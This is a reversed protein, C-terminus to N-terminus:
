DRTKTAGSSYRPVPGFVCNAERGFVPTGPHRCANGKSSHEWQEPVQLRHMNLGKEMVHEGMSLYEHIEAPCRMTELQISTSQGVLNMVLIYAGLHYPGYLALELLGQHSVRHRPSPPYGVVICSVLSPRVLSGALSYVTNRTAKIVLATSGTGRFSHESESNPFGTAPMGCM